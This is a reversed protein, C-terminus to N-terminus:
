PLEWLEVFGRRSGVLAQSGDPTVALSDGYCASSTRHQPGDASFQWLRLGGSPGVTLLQGVPLLAVATADALAERGLLTGAADWTWLMGTDDLAALNGNSGHELAVLWGGGATRLTPLPTGTPLAFRRVEGNYATAFVENGSPAFSVALVATAGLGDHEIVTLTRHLEGTAVSWLRLTGDWGVSALQTGTANFALALVPGEHAVLGGRSVGNPLRWLRVLGDNGASALMRGDPSIALANIASRHAAISPIFHGQESWLKLSGDEGGLAFQKDGMAVASIAPLDVHQDIVFGDGSWRRIAGDRGASLMGGGATLVLGSIAARHGTIESLLEGTPWAWRLIQGTATGAVLTTGDRAFALRLVPELMREATDIGLRSLLTGDIVNWLWVAGAESRWGESAAAVVLGDPSFAVESIVRQGVSLQRLAQGTSLQWIVLNGNQDGTALHDGDPAFRMSTLPGPLALPDRVAHLQLEQLPRGAAVDWIMIAESGMGVALLPHEPAFALAQVDASHRLTTRLQGTAADRLEVRQELALALTAGDPALALAVPAQGLPEQWFLAKLDRADRRQLSRTTAVFLDTEQPNLALALPVGDGWVQTRQLLPADAAAEAINAVGSTRRPEPTVLLLGLPAMTEAPSPAVLQTSPLAEFGCAALGLAFLSLYFIPHLAKM